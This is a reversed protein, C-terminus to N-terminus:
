QALLEHVHDQPQLEISSSGLNKKLGREKMLMRVKEVDSWRGMLAYRNSLVVYYGSNEPQLEILKWAAFESLELNGHARAFLDVLCAYHKVAPSFGYIGDLITSFILQGMQVLGSHSCARLVGILTAEDPKVGEQVM